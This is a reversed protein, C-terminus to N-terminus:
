EGDAARHREDACKESYAAQYAKDASVIEGHEGPIADGEADQHQDRRLHAPYIPAIVLAM